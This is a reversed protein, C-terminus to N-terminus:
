LCAGGRGAPYIRIHVHFANDSNLLKMSELVKSRLAYTLRTERDSGWIPETCLSQLCFFESHSDAGGGVVKQKVRLVNCVRQKDHPNYLGAPLPRALAKADLLIPHM